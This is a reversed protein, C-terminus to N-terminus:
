ECTVQSKMDFYGVTNRHSVISLNTVDYLRHFVTFQGNQFGTCGFSLLYEGGQLVMEQTFTVTKTDGVQVNGLSLGEFMTNTGTLETGKLDKITYALIPDQISAHFKAKIKIQFVTGKEICNTVRGSDDIIAFDIIEGQLDGYNVVKGNQNM